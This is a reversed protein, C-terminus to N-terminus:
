ALLFNQPLMLFIKFNMPNSIPQCYTKGVPQNCVQVWLPINPNYEKKVFKKQPPPILKKHNRHLPANGKKVKAEMLEWYKMANLKKQTPSQKKGNIPSNIYSLKVGDPKIQEIINEIRKDIIKQIDSTSPIQKTNVNTKEPVSIQENAKVSKSLNTEKTEQGSLKKLEDMNVELKFRQPPPAQEPKSFLPIGYKL